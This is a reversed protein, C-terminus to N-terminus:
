PLPVNPCFAFLMFVCQFNTAPRNRNMTNAPEPKASSLFARPAGPATCVCCPCVTLTGIPQLRVEPVHLQWPALSQSSRLFEFRHSPSILQWPVPVEPLLKEHEHLYLIGSGVGAGWYRVNPRRMWTM